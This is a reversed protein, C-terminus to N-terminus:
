NFIPYKEKATTLPTPNAREATEARFALAAAEAALVRGVLAPSAESLLIYDSGSVPTPTSTMGLFQPLELNSYLRM